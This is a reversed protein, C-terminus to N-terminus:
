YSMVDISTVAFIQPKFDNPVGNHHFRKVDFVHNFKFTQIIDLSATNPEWINITVKAGKIDTCIAQLLAKATVADEAYLPGIQHQNDQFCPRRCVYGVINQNTDMAVLSRGGPVAIWKELFARRLPFDKQIYYKNDFDIFSGFSVDAAKVISGDYNPETALDDDVDKDFRKTQFVYSYGLQPLRWALTDIVADVTLIRKGIHGGAIENKLRHGLAKGRYKPDVYYMSGYFINDACLVRTASAVIEGDIEGIYFGPIRPWTSMIVELDYRSTTGLDAYWRQVQKADETTMSRVIYGDDWKKFIRPNKDLEANEAISYCSRTAMRNGHCSFGHVLRNLFRLSQM